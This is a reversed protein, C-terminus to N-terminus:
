GQSPRRGVKKSMTEDPCADGRMQSRVTTECAAALPEGAGLKLLDSLSPQKPLVSTSASGDELLPKGSADIM